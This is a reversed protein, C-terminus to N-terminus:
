ATASRQLRLTTNIVKSLKEAYAPDTAYGARQLGQAFGHANGRSALVQEYRPNTKMLNAYDAFSEAYSSYARFKQVVKRAVGNTYETTMVDATPGTWNAGAKIGFLNHASSGDAHRIEKRGWGTEHAAQAIMFSAPIGSAAEASAAATQHQQVFGLAAQQPVKVEANPKLPNVPTRNASEAKPIPGPNMGMQRELQRAIVDSLGGPLGSLKGAWQTDLMESGMKTAENELMGTSQASERMNKLLQQMFLSEFQKAAERVAAKPDKSAAVKLSEIGRADGYGTRALAAPNNISM